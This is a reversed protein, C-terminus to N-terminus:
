FISNILRGILNTLFVVILAILLHEGIIKVPRSGEQKAMYYSISSIVLLGWIVSVIIATTLNFILIPLVFTMAFFLKAVFTAMTAQWVEARTHQNESEESIHMGFADSLADAIAIILIGGIVVSQLHTSAHLGVIMGLTTIIGSTLGFSLGKKLSHNM